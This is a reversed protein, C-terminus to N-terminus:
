KITVLTGADGGSHEWDTNLGYKTELFEGMEQQEAASLKRNYVLIEAIIGRNPENNVAPGRGSIYAVRDVATFDAASGTVSFSSAVGDIINEIDSATTGLIGLQIFPETTTDQHTRYSFTGSSSHHFVGRHISGTWLLFEQTTTGKQCIAIAASASGTTEESGVLFISAETFNFDSTATENDTALRKLQDSGFDLGGKGNIANAVYTPSVVLANADHDLGSLDHWTPVSAGDAPNSGDLVNSGDLHLVLGDTILAGHAMLASALALVVIMAATKKCQKEM